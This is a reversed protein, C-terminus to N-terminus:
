DILEEFIFKYYYYTSVCAGILFFVSIIFLVGFSGPFVSSLTVTFINLFSLVTPVVSLGLNAGGWGFTWKDKNKRALILILANAGILVFAIILLVISSISAIYVLPNSM